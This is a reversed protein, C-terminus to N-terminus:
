KFAIERVHIKAAEGANLDRIEIRVKTVFPPANDFTLEVHPDSPLGRYVQSYTVPQTNDPPDLSVTLSFDMSGLDLALGELRRPTPFTFELVMPNAELGRVLTFTDKDFLNILQGMDFLSHTVTITEGKLRFQETLPKRRADKEAALIQDINDAYTLRGFYFGDTGDPYLLTREIQISKFKKSAQARRYEEPTMVFVMKTDLPRKEGMLADVNLVQVRPEKPTFYNVFVDTGNAWTPTLFVRTEPSQKVYERIVEFVQKAGWQMGYLGYSKYWLAGNAVADRMMALSGYSLVAFVVMAALYHTKRGRLRGLIFDLGLATFLSAPVVFALARTVGPGTLAMGVPAALAGIIVARHASSKFYRVCLGVGALFLPLTLLSIHGYDKLRHRILDQEHPIFWYQPSIGYAFRMVFQGIKEQLSIDRFLYTDLTRLHYAVENPHQVRFQAYPWALLLLLILGKLGTRWNQLHYRLDSFFLLAGSIGIVLQGNGYSYFTMAAFILAPYLFRPSRYRYLLYCGLFWAYFSVMMATEFATRSHLFWAPTMALFLVGTWWYRVKFISRLVLGVAATGLLTVMASTARTVVISKGFLLVTVAHFYVSILPNFFGYTNFFLPLLYGQPDRLGRQILDSALVAEIAEDAFFYIPFQDLAVLRTVAYVGLSLVFLISGFVEVQALQSLDLRRAGVGVQGWTGIAPFTFRLTRVRAIANQWSLDSVLLAFTGLLALLSILLGVTFSTPNYAFVYQHIGPQIDTALYGGVNKLDQKRGDVTVQWGPYANMLVVLLSGAEGPMVIEVRNFNPIFPTLATVEESRLESSGAKNSLMENKVAFAFPLSHPLRYVTHTEFRQIPIPDPLEPQKDNGLVMYNPRAVVPRQNVMGKVPHVFTFGYWADIYRLENSAFSGHWGNPNGTYYTSSDFQRLWEMINYSVEYPPRTGVARQNQTYVDAVGWAMFLVLLGVVFRLAFRRMLARTTQAPWEIGTWTLKWLSDIGLGGLAIIAVAGYILMRTPYRFQNLFSTRTYFDRWPMERIDVWAIVFALLLGFFLLSRKERKWAALPLLGLSLLPWIGIYAYFEESPLTKIADPRWRDPSLYDRLIQELTHAGYMQPDAAKSIFPWFELLPLLQIAILAVTLLGIMVLISVRDRNFHLGPWQRRFDFLAVLTYLALAFLMYYAYYVNGSFFLLALAFVAIAIHLRRGTQTAAIVGAISWPIWAFGLVFDYEGQFFRAVAQGTFAYMLGTWLRAPGGMGLVAGLWWMGIGAALFSLFLAFKFGDLVGLLLVPLTALPNYVHLFPDAIFPLGTQLYPNWLPFQGHQRLSNVLVWDLSQVIEAENGTLLRKTGLDLFKSCFALVAVLILSWELLVTTWKLKAGAHELKVGPRSFDLRWIRSPWRLHSLRGVWWGIHYGAVFLALNIRTKLTVEGM